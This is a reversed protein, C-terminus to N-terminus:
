MDLQKSPVAVRDPYDTPRLKEKKKREIKVSRESKNNGRVAREIMGGNV